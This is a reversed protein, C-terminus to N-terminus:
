SIGGADVGFFLRRRFVIQFSNYNARNNGSTIKVSHGM